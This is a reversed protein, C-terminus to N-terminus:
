YPPGMERHFGGWDFADKFDIIQVDKMKHNKEGRMVLLLLTEADSEDGGFAFYSTAGLTDGPGPVFQVRFVRGDAWYPPVIEGVSSRWKVIDSANLLTNKPIREALDWLSGRAILHRRLALYLAWRRRRDPYRTSGVIDTWFTIPEVPLRTLGRFARMFDVDSKEPNQLEKLVGPESLFQSRATPGSWVLLGLVLLYLLGQAPAARM